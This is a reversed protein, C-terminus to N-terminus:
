NQARGNRIWEDHFVQHFHGTSIGVILGTRSLSFFLTAAHNLKGGARSASQSNKYYYILVPPARAVVWRAAAAAPFDKKRYRYNLIINEGLCSIRKRFEYAALTTAARRKGCSDRWGFPVKLKAGRRAREGFFFQWCMRIKELNGTSSFPLPAAAAAKASRSRAIM